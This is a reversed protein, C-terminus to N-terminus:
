ASAMDRISRDGLSLREVRSEYADDDHHGKVKAAPGIACGGKRLRIVARINNNSESKANILFDAVIPILALVENCPLGSCEMAAITMLKSKRHHRENKTDPEALHDKVSIEALKDEGETSAM